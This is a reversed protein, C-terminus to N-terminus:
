RTMSNSRALKLSNAWGKKDEDGSLTRSFSKSKNRFTVPHEKSASSHVLARSKELEGVVQWKAGNQLLDDTVPATPLAAVGHAHEFRYNATVNCGEWRVRVRIKLFL